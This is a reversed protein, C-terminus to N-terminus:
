MKQRWVGYLIGAALGPDSWFIPSSFSVVFVIYIANYLVFKTMQNKHFIVSKIGEIFILLIFFIYLFFGFIGYQRWASLFNHIYSGFSGFVRVQGGYDGFIPSSVIGKLGENLMISRLYYSSNHKESFLQFIRKTEFFDINKLVYVMSAIFIALFAIRSRKDSFFLFDVFLVLLWAILQTRAGIFFLMVTGFVMLFFKVTFRDYHSFLVFLLIIVGRAIDQYTSFTIKSSVEHVNVYEFIGYSSVNQIICFFEVIFIMFCIKLQWKKLERFNAGFVFLGVYLFLSESTNYLIMIKQNDSFSSVLYSFLNFFTMFFILVLFVILIPSFYFSKKKYFFDFSRFFFYLLLLPTFFGGLTLMYIGKGNLFNYFFVGPFLLIFFLFDTNKLFINKRDLNATLRM